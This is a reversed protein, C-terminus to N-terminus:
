VVHVCLHLAHVCAYMYVYVISTCLYVCVCLEQLVFNKIMYMYTCLNRKLNGCVCVCVCVCVCACMYAWVCALVCVCVYVCVCVCVCAWVLFINHRAVTSLNLIELDTHNTRRSGNENLDTLM